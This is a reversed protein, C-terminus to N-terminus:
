KQYRETDLIITDEGYKDKHAQAQRETTMDWKDGRKNTFDVDKNSKGFLGENQLFKNNEVKERVKKDIISGRYTKELYPRKKIANLQKRSFVKHGQGADILKDTQEAVEDVMNQLTKTTKATKYGDYVKTAVKTAIKGAGGTAVTILADKALGDAVAEWGGEQYNSYADYAAIAAGVAFWFVKGDPDVMNVPNNATYTYLGLNRPDFVGHNPQGDIYKNLIPDPSQWVSTRPDYYGAGYLSFSRAM